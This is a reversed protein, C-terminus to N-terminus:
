ADSAGKTTGMFALTFADAAEAMAKTKTVFKVYKLTTAEDRHLAAERVFDVADGVSLCSLAARMLRTLFTSRSRHFHFERLATIGASSGAKRLRSMEVNVARSGEGWYPKGFRTLFVLEQHGRRAQAQRKLRRTSSAYEKLEELLDRAVLVTGSVGFKTSVPPRAGPGVSLRHWGADGLLPCKQARELTQVKLDTITGIRMGSGFGLQLMLRLEQSATEQALGLIEQTQESSVPMLGDELQWTGAVKRNPIALDTTSVTLTHELGFGDVLKIGVQREAWMPWDASILGSARAWRYFRVVAAMRQSTTSPALEGEDRAKV